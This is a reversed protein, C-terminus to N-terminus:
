EMLETDDSRKYFPIIPVGNELQLAYSYAANDVLLVNQMERQMSFIRLDKVYFGEAIQVCNDRFLRKTILKNEPDLYDIVPNAYCSHSATFVMVEFGQKVLEQLIDKAFPRVNIGAEIYEGTPFTVPVKIDYNDNQNENCHILTEDLDFIITKKNTKHSIDPLDMIIKDSISEQTPIALKSLISISQLTQKFHQRFVTPYHDNSYTKYAFELKSMYYVNTFKLKLNDNNTAKKTDVTKKKRNKNSTSSTPKNLNYNRSNLPGNNRSNLPGNFMISGLSSNTGLNDQKIQTIYSNINSSTNSTQNISSNYGQYKTPKMQKSSTQQNVLSNNKEGSTKRVNAGQSNQSAQRIKSLSSKPRSKDTSKQTLSNKSTKRDELSKFFQNKDSAGTQLLKSLQNKYDSRPVYNHTNTSNSSYGTKPKSNSCSYIM